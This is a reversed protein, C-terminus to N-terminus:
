PDPYHTQSRVCKGQSPKTPHRSPSVDKLSWCHGLSSQPSLRFANIGTGVSAVNRDAQAGFGRRNAESALANSKQREVADLYDVSFTTSVKCFFRKPM